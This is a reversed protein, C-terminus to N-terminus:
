KMFTVFMLIPNDFENLGNVLKELEKKKEPFNPSNNKFDDSAVHEILQKADIWMVMTSDNIQKQPFFKPGADIDNYLGTAFLPNDTTVPKCFVFEKTNKDYIGLAETTNYMSPKAGPINYEKPTFRRAPFFRGLACRIFLLDETQYVNYVYIYQFMDKIDSAQVEIPEKYKGLYFAYKPILDQNGDLYFLTDNYLNKFYIRGDYQLIHAFDEFYGFVRRERKFLSYNKYSKLIRGTKNILLAKNEILGTSNPVNGLLISDNLPYWTFISYNDDVSL